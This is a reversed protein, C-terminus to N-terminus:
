ATNIVLKTCFGVPATTIESCCIFAPPSRTDISSSAYSVIILSYRSKVNLTAHDIIGGHSPLSVNLDKHQSVEGSIVEQRYSM